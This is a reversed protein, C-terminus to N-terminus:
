IPYFVQMSGSRSTLKDMSPFSRPPNCPAPRKRKGGWERKQINLEDGLSIKDV